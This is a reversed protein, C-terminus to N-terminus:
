RPELMSRAMRTVLAGPLLKSFLVQLRNVFGPIVVRRGAMVARYGAMAVAEASMVGLGLLRIRTMGAREQFETRTAGPCLATVTVGSGRLEEALALSLSLVYSKTAAYVANLPAPAFSGTSGLNLIRGHGRQRMGALVLKTLETLAVLNVQIMRIEAALDTEHFSGYVDFGANNVLVDVAISKRELQKLIERAAGELALDQSIIEVDVNFVARLEGALAQLRNWDRAVLVLSCGHAAFIRALERGIGSSAGTILAHTTTAASITNM